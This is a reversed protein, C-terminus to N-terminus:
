PLCLRDTTAGQYDALCCRSFHPNRLHMRFTAAFTPRVDILPIPVKNGSDMSVDLLVVVLSFTYFFRFSTVYAAAIAVSLMCSRM